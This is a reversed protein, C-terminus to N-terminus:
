VTDFAPAGAVAVTSAFAATVSAFTEVVEIGSLEGAAEEVAVLRAADVPPSQNVGSRIVAPAPPVKTVPMPPTARTVGLPTLVTNRAGFM